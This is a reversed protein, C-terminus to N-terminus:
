SLEAVNEIVKIGVNGVFNGSSDFLAWFGTTATNPLPRAEYQGPELTLYGTKTHPLITTASINILINM